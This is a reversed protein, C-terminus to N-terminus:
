AVLADISRLRDRHRHCFCRGRPGTRSLTFMSSLLLQYVLCRSFRGGIASSFPFTDEIPRKSPIKRFDARSLTIIEPDEDYIGLRSAFAAILSHMLSSSSGFNHQYFNWSQYQNGRNFDDKLGEEGYTDYKKRLEDDRLIEYARNIRM